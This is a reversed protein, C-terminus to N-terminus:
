LTVSSVAIETLAPVESPNFIVNVPASWGADFAIVTFTVDDVAVLIKGFSAEFGAAATLAQPAQSPHSKKLQIVCYQWSGSSEQFAVDTIAPINCDYKLFKFLNREYAIQRIKSSESPPMQSILSMFIPNKRHTIATINFVPNIHIEAMYGCYEGFAGTQTEM